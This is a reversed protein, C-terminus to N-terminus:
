GQGMDKAQKKEKKKEMKKGLKQQRKSTEPTEEEEKTKKVKAKTAALVKKAKIRAMEEIKKEKKDIVVLRASIKRIEARIKRISVDKAIKKPELGSEKLVDLRRSLVGEWYTKQADRAIKDKSAM